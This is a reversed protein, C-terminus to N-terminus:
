NFLVISIVFIKTFEPAPFILFSFPRKHASFICLLEFINVFKRFDAFNRFQKTFYFLFGFHKETLIGFQLSASKVIFDIHLAFILRFDAFIKTLM